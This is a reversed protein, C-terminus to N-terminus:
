GARSLPLGDPELAVMVAVISGKPAVEGPALPRVMLTGGPGRGPAVAVRQARHGVLANPSALAWDSPAVTVVLEVDEVADVLSTVATAAQPPSSSSPPSSAVAVAVPASSIAVNPAPMSALLAAGLAPSSARAAAYRVPGSAPASSSGSPASRSPKAPVTERAILNPVSVRPPPATAATSANRASAKLRPSSVAPAESIKPPRASGIEKALMQGARSLAAARETQGIADASEAAYRVQELAARQEGKAWLEHASDLARRAQDADTPEIRPLVVSYRMRKGWDEFFSSGSFPGLM